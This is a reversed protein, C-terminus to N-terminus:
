KDVLKLWDKIVTKLAKEKAQAEEMNAIKVMRRGDTYSGELIGTTDNVKAGTPFVLLIEGKRLNMVVIDRKYEKPDFPKMDGTYYFSPSNWKIQEGVTKDASLIVQRVYGVTEAFPASLAAIHTTVQEADTLTRKVKAM